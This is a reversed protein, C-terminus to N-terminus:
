TNYFDFVVCGNAKSAIVKLDSSSLANPNKLTIQAQTDSAKSAIVKLDSPSITRADLVMGGGKSAIVKLDSISVSM